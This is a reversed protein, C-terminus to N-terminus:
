IATIVFRNICPTVQPRIKGNVELLLHAPNILYQKVLVKVIEEYDPLYRNREDNLLISSDYQVDPQILALAEDLAKISGYYNNSSYDISEEAPMMSMINSTLIEYLSEAGNTQMEQDLFQKFWDTPYIASSDEVPTLGYEDQIEMIMENAYHIEMPIMDEPDSGPEVGYRTTIFDPNQQLFSAVFDRIIQSKAEYILNNANPNIVRNLVEDVAQLNSYGGPPCKFECSNIKDVIPMIKEAFIVDDAIKDRYECLRFFISELLDKIQDVAVRDSGPMYPSTFYTDLNSKTETSFHLIDDTEAILLRGQTKFDCDKWDKDKTIVGSSPDFNPYTSDDSSSIRKSSYLNEALYKDVATPDLSLKATISKFKNTFEM